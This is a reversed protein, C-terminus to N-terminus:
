PSGDKFMVLPTTPVSAVSESAARVSAAPRVPTVTGSVLEGRKLPVTLEPVSLLAGMSTSASISFTSAPSITVNAMTMSFSPEAGFPAKLTVTASVSGAPNAIGVPPKFRDIVSPAPVAIPKVSRSPFGVVSASSKAPPRRRFSSLASSPASDTKLSVEPSFTTTM